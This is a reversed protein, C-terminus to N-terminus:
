KEGTRLAEAAIEVVDISADIKRWAIAGVDRRLQSALVDTTADSADHTRAEIRKTLTGIMRQRAAAGCAAISFTVACSDVPNAM